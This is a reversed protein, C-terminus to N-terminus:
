KLVFMSSGIEWSVSGLLYVLVAVEGVSILCFRSCITVSLSREKPCHIFSVFSFFVLSLKIFFGAKKYGCKKDQCDVWMKAIMRTVFLDIM